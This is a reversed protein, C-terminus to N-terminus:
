HPTGSDHQQLRKAIEIFIRDTQQKLREQVLGHKADAFEIMEPTFDKIGSKPLSRRSVTNLANKLTLYDSSIRLQTQLYWDLDSRLESDTRNEVLYSM